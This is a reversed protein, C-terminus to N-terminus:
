RSYTHPALRDLVLVHRAQDLEQLQAKHRPISCFTIDISICFGVLAVLHTISCLVVHLLSAGLISLADSYLTDHVTCELNNRHYRKRNEIAGRGQKNHAVNNCIYGYLRKRLATAYPGFTDM